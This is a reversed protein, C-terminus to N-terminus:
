DNEGSKGQYEQIEKWLYAMQSLRLGMNQLEFNQNWLVHFQVEFYSCMVFAIFIPSVKAITMSLQIHSLTYLFEGSLFSVITIRFSEQSEKIKLIDKM